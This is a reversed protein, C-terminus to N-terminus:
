GDGTDPPSILIGPTFADWIMLALATLRADCVRRVNM